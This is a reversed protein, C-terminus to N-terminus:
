NNKKIIPVFKIFFNLHYYFNFNLYFWIIQEALMQCLFQPHTSCATVSVFNEEKSCYFRVNTCSWTDTELFM